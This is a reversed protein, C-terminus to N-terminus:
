KEDRGKKNQISNYLFTIFPKYFKLVLGLLILPGVILLFVMAVGLVDKPDFPMKVDYEVELADVSPKDEKAKSKEGEANEKNVASIQVKYPKGNELSKVILKNSKLPEDNVKKGDIYVNYGELYPSKVDNWAIVMKGNQPTLIVSEPPKILPMPEKPKLKTKVVKEIGKSDSEGYMAVFKFNYNKNAELGDVKYSNEDKNVTAVLSGEKYIKVGTFLPNSPNEWTFSVDKVGEIANLNRIEDLVLPKTGLLQIYNLFAGTGVPAISSYEFKVYRVNKFRKNGIYDGKDTVRVDERGIFKKSSDYYTFIAFPKYNTVNGGGPSNVLFSFVESEIGLDYYIGKYGISGIGIGLDMGTGGVMLRGNIILRKTFEFDTYVEIGNLLNQKKEEEASAFSPIAFCILMVLSLLFGCKKFKM